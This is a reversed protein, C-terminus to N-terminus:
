KPKPIIINLYHYSSHLLFISFWHFVLGWVLLVCFMSNAIWEPRLEKLGVLMNYETSFDLQFIDM